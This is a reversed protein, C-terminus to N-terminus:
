SAWKDLTGLSMSFRRDIGFEEVAIDASVLDCRIEDQRNGAVTIVQKKLGCVLWSKFQESFAVLIVEELDNLGTDRKYRIVLSPGGCHHEM